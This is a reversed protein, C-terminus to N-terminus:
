KVGKLNGLGEECVNCVFLIGGKPVISNDIFYEASLLLVAVSMTDDGVGPCYIKEDDEHFEPYSEIDPFVTDTHAAVITIASSGECEIPLIVNNVGDLYAGTAGAKELWKLCYEARRREMHSPAPIACLDRIINLLNEYNQEAFEHLMTKEQVLQM